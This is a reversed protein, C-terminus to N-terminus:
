SQQNNNLLAQRMIQPHLKEFAKIDEWRYRVANAIKVYAPGTGKIRWKQLTKPSLNWLKALDKECLYYEKNM